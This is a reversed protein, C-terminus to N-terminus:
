SSVVMMPNFFCLLTAVLGTDNFVDWQFCPSFVATKHRVLWFNRFFEDLKAPLLLLIVPGIHEGPWQKGVRYLSWLSM